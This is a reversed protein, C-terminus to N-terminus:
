SVSLPRKRRKRPNNGNFDNGGHQSDDDGSGYEDDDSPLETETKGIVPGSHPSHLQQGHVHTQSAM